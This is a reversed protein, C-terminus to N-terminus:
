RGDPVQDITGKVLDVRQSLSGLTQRALDLMAASPDVGTFRWGPQAEAM